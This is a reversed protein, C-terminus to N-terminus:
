KSTWAPNTFSQISPLLKQKSQDTPVEIKEEAKSGGGDFAIAPDASVVPALLLLLRKLDLPDSHRVTQSPISSQGGLAAAKVLRWLSAIFSPQVGVAALFWKFRSRRYVHLETCLKHQQTGCMSESPGCSKQFEHM